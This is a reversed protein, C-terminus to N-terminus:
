IECIGLRGLDKEDARWKPLAVFVFNALLADVNKSIAM